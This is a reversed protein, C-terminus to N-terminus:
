ATTPDWDRGTRRKYDSEYDSDKPPKYPHERMYRETETPSRIGYGRPLSDHLPDGAFPDDKPNRQTQRSPANQRTTNGKGSLLEHSKIGAADIMVNAQFNLDKSSAFDGKSKAANAQEHLSIVAAIVTERKLKGSKLNEQITDKASKM